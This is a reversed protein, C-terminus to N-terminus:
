RKHVPRYPMVPEREINKVRERRWVFVFEDHESRCEEVISWAADNLILVHPVAQGQVGRGAGRLCARGSWCRRPEWDWRLRCVNDDRAGSNLGFLVM